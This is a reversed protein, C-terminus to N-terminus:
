FAHFTYSATNLGLTIIVLQLFSHAKPAVLPTWGQKTCIQFLPSNTDRSIRALLLKLAQVPCFNKSMLAPLQVVQAQNSAQMTKSCTIITHVGPAGWVVDSQILISTKEFESTKTPLLTSLRFFGFFTTVFLAAFIYGNEHMMSKDILLKVTIIGKVKISMRANIQVSKLLLPVKRGSLAMTPCNFMAFYHNLMSVHNRISCSKLGQQVLYELYVLTVPEKYPISLGM